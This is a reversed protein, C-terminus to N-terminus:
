MAPLQSAVRRKKERCARLLGSENLMAVVADSDDPEAFRYLHAFSGSSYAHWRPAFGREALLRNLRVERECSSSDTIAPSSSRTTPSRAIGRDRRGRSRGRRVRRAHVRRGAPQASSVHASADVEANIPM